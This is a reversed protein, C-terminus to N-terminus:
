DFLATQQTDAKSDVKINVKTISTQKDGWRKMAQVVSLLSKGLPTITYEVRPPIEAFTSRELIGLKELSKLQKSLMQRNIGEVVTLLKTFRNAGKSIQFLIIPKWKSDLM